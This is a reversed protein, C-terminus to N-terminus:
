LCTQGCHQFFWVTQSWFQIAATLQKHSDCQCLGRASTESLDVVQLDNADDETLDRDTNLTVPDTTSKTEHLIREDHSTLRAM